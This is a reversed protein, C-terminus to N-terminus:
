LRELPDWSALRRFTCRCSRPKETNRSTSRNSAPFNSLLRSLLMRCALCKKSTRVGLARSRHRPSLSRLSQTCLSITSARWLWHLMM